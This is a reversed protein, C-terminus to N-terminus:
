CCRCPRGARRAHWASPALDAEVRLRLMLRPGALLAVLLIYNIFPVTRPLTDLRNYAFLVLYSFLVVIATAQLIKVLDRMSVYRWVARHLGLLAFVVLSLPVLVLTAELWMHSTIEYGGLGYRLIMAGIFAMPAAAVDWALSMYPKFRLRM